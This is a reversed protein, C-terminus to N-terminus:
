KHHSYADVFCYVGGGAGQCTEHIKKHQYDFLFNPLEFPVLAMSM